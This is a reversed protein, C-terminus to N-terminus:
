KVIQKITIKKMGMEDIHNSIFENVDSNTCRFNNCINNTLQQELKIFEKLGIRVACQKHFADIKYHNTSGYINMSVFLCTHYFTKYNSVDITEYYTKIVKQYIMLAIIHNIVPCTIHEIVHQVTLIITHQRVGICRSLHYLTEALFVELKITTNVDNHCNTKRKLINSIKFLKLLNFM